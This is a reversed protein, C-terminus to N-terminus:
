LLLLAIFPLALSSVLEFTKRDVGATPLWGLAAAAVALLVFIALIAGAQKFLPSSVDAPNMLQTYTYRMQQFRKHLATLLVPVLLFSVLINNLFITTALFSFAVIGLYDVGLAIIVGCFGSAVVIALVLVSWGKWNLRQDPPCGFARLIRYPAYAYVFNGFFGFFTGPGVTGFLVDGITNGFAAGWAAAPGFFISFLVPLAAGPRIETIGPVISAIKFPGLVAVYLASTLGILVVMRTHQWCRILERM